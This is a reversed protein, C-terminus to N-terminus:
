HSPPRVRSGVWRLIAACRLLSGRWSRCARQSASATRKEEPQSLWPAFREAASWHVSCSPRTKEVLVLLAVNGNTSTCTGLRVASSLKMWKLKVAWSAGSRNMRCLWVSGISCSGHPSKLSTLIAPSDCGSIGNKCNSLLWLATLWKDLGIASDECVSGVKVSFERRAHHKSCKWTRRTANFSVKDSGCGPCIVGNPWRRVALYDICNDPSSFYVIAEQLSKPESM